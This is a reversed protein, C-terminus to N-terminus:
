SSRRAVLIMRPSDPRLTSADFGGFRGTVKLGREELTESLEEEDYVRVSETWEIPEGELPSWQISKRVRCSSRDFSRREEIRTGDELERETHPQLSEELYSKNIHDLVFTGSPSLVRAIGDLVKLNEEEAEFYGFSTFLNIVFRFSAARFPLARMDGEVLCWRSSPPRSLGSREPRMLRRAEALLTHSLDLGASWRLWPALKSLHRGAGCCLDLLRHDQELGGAARLFDVARAADAENRHAYLELYQGKFAKRYWPFSDAM